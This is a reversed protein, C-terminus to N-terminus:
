FWAEGTFGATFASTEDAIFKAEAEENWSAFTMYFRIRPVNGQAVNLQVAPTIKILNLADVGHYKLMDYGGDLMLAVYKSVDYNLRAGFQLRNRIGGMGMSHMNHAEHEALVVLSVSLEPTPKMTLDDLVIARLSDDSVLIPDTGTTSIFNAGNYNKSNAMAGTGASLYLVNRGGLIGTQTWRLHGSFGNTYADSEELMTHAAAAGVDITGGTFLQIGRVQIVHKLGDANPRLLGYHFTMNDGIKLNTIGVGVGSSNWYERDLMDVADVLWDRQGTWIEADLGPLGKIDFYFEKHTIEDSASALKGGCLMYHINGTVGEEGKYVNLNWGIQGWTGQNGLRPGDEGLDFYKIDGMSPSLMVGWDSRMYGYVTNRNDAQATGATLVVALVALTTAIGKFGM